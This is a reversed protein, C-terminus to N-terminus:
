QLGKPGQEQAQSHQTQQSLRHQSGCMFHMVGLMGQGICRVSVVADWDVRVRCLRASKVPQQM